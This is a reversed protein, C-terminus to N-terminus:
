YEASWLGLSGVCKFFWDQVGRNLNPEFLGLRDMNYIYGRFRGLTPLCPMCHLSIPLKWLSNGQPDSTDENQSVSRFM